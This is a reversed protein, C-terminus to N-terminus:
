QLHPLNNLIANAEEKRRITGNSIGYLAECELAMKLKRKAQLITKNDKRYNESYTDREQKTM